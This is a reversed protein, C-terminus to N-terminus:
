AGKLVLEIATNMQLSRQRSDGDLPLDSVILASPAGTGEYQVPGCAKLSVATAGSAGSAAGAGLVAVGALLITLLASLVLRNGMAPFSRAATPRVAFATERGM